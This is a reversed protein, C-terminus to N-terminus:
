EVNQRTQALIERRFSLRLRLAQRRLKKIGIVQYYRCNKYHKCITGTEPMIFIGSRVTWLLESSLEHWISSQAEQIHVRRCLVWPKARLFNIQRQLLSGAVTILILIQLSLVPMKDDSFFWVGYQPNVADAWIAAAILKRTYAQKPHEFIDERSGIEVAKGDKMVM